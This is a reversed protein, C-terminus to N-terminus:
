YVNRTEDSYIALSPTLVQDTVCNGADLLESAARTLGDPEAGAVQRSSSATVTVVSGPPESM